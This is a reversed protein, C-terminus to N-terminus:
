AKKAEQSRDGCRDRCPEDSHGRSCPSPPAVDGPDGNHAAVARPSRCSDVDTGTEVGPDAASDDVIATGDSSGGTATDTTTGADPPDPRDDASTGDSPIAPTTGIPVATPPKVVGCDETCATAVDDGAPTDTRSIMRGLVQVEDTVGDPDLGAGAVTSQQDRNMADGELAVIDAGRGPAEPFPGRGPALALAGAIVACCVGLTLPSISPEARM